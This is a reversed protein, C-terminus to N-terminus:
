LEGLAKKLRRAMRIAEKRIKSELTDDRFRSNECSGCPPVIHCSCSHQETSCYDCVKTYQWRCLDCNICSM